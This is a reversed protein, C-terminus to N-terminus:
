AGLREDQVEEYEGPAKQLFRSLRRERTERGTWCARLTM